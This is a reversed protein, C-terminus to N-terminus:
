NTNPLKWVESSIYMIVGIITWVGVIIWEPYALFSPVGPILYLSFVIASMIIALSGIIKGNKVKYPRALEPEKKRLVLFSLSVIFYAIVISFGGANAIWLLANRGLFPAICSILGIFM